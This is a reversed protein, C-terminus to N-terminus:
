KKATKIRTIKIRTIKIITIKIKIKIKLKIDSGLALGGDSDGNPAATSIPYPNPLFIPTQNAVLKVLGPTFGAGKSQLGEWSIPFPSVRGVSLRLSGWCQQVFCGTFPM